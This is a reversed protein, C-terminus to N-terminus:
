VTFCKLTCLLATSLLATCHLAKCPLATCHLATCRVTVYHLATCHLATCHLINCCHILVTWHHSTCHLAACHLATCHLSMCYLATYPLATFHLATPRLAHSLGAPWHLNFFDLRLSHLLAAGILYIIVTETDGSHPICYLEICVLSNFQQANFCYMKLMVNCHLARSYLACCGGVRRVFDGLASFFDKHKEKQIPADIRMPRSIRHRGYAPNKRTTLKFWIEHLLM